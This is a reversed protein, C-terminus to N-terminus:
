CCVGSSFCVLPQKNHNNDNNNDNNNNDNDNNNDNNNDNDNDNDNNNDADVACFFMSRLGAECEARCSTPSGPAPRPVSPWHMRTTPTMPMTMAMSTTITTRRMTIIMTTTTITPM